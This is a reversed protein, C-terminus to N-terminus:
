KGGGVKIDGLKPKLIEYAVPYPLVKFREAIALAEKVIKDEDQIERIVQIRKATNKMFYTRASQGNRNGRMIQM